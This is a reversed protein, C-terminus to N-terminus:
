VSRDEQQDCLIADPDLVRVLDEHRIRPDEYSPEYRGRMAQENLNGQKLIEDQAAATSCDGYRFAQRYTSELIARSFSSGMRQKIGTRQAMATLLLRSTRPDHGGSLFVLFLEPPLETRELIRQMAAASEEPNIPEGSETGPTPFSTKIFFPHNRFDGAEIREWLHSLVETMLAENQELTGPNKLLFEPELVAAIKGNRACQEHIHAMQVAAAEKGREQVVAAVTNRFKGVHIGMGVLAELQEPLAAMDKVPILGHMQDNPDNVLGCKKGIPEVGQERLHEMLPRGDPGTLAYADDAQIAGTFYQGLNPTTCIAQRIQTAKREFDADDAVPIGFQAMHKCHTKKSQDMALFHPPRSEDHFIEMTEDFHSNPM